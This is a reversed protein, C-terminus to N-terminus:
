YMFSQPVEGPDLYKGNAVVGVVTFRQAPDGAMLVKGVPDEGPFFLEAMKHNIMALKSGGIVTRRM